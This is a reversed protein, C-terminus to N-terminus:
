DKADSPVFLKAYSQPDTTVHYAHIVNNEFGDPGIDAVILRAQEHPQVGRRETPQRYKARGNRVIVVMGAALVVVFILWFIPSSLM